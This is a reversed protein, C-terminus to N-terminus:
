NWLEDSAIRAGEVLTALKAWVVDPDMGGGLASTAFGCDSSAIVRERGVRRAYQCIRQGVLRPHEIFNTTSDIVGPLIIKQEPLKITDFVEYEHAHRPNAGEFSIKAPRAKFVLPLIKELPLDFHHPGAYNGWCIHIRMRDAPLGKTAENIAEVAAESYRWFVEEPEDGYGIHRGMALEPCDLQVDLGAGLIAEYEARLLPIMAALYAEFSPYFKNRMFYAILGPSASNMFAGPPGLASVAAQLNAIDNTMPEPDRLSVPGVCLPRSVKLSGVSKALAPFPRLDLQVPPVFEGGFGNWREVVYTAYTQKSLEGDSVIDIGARLQREVVTRVAPKLGDFFAKRDPAGGSARARHYGAIDDPRPLSGVHTTLIREAASM